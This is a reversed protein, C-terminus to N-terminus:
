KSKEIKIAIVHIKITDDKLNIILTDGPELTQLAGALSQCTDKSVSYEILEAM